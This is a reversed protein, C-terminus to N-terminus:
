LGRRDLGTWAQVLDKHAPFSAAEHEDLLAIRNRGGSKACYLARDAADILTQPSVIHPNLQDSGVVGISATVSKKEKGYSVEMQSIQQLLREAIIMAAASDTNKLVIAFEEGGYRCAVDSKRLVQNIEEAIAQLMGDGFSHGYTDNVSKFHDIDIMLLSLFGERQELSFVEEALHEDLYRRNWLGTLADIQAKTSLLDHYRKMRLAARVRAKLEVGDFPKTVYDLAGLDFAKVKTAVDLIGTLFIIPTNVLNRDQRLQVFLTFGDVDPMDLDLLILDLPHDLAIQLAEAACHAHYMSIRECGLRAAILHHIDPSDDVVLISQRLTNTLTM